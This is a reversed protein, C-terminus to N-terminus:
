MFYESLDYIYDKNNKKNVRMSIKDIILDPNFIIISSKYKNKYVLQYLKIKFIDISKIEFSKINSIIKYKDNDILNSNISYIHNIVALKNAVVVYLFTMYLTISVYIDMKLYYFLISVSYFIIFYIIARTRYLLKVTLYSYYKSPPEKKFILRKDITKVINSLAIYENKVYWILILFVIVYLIEVYKFEIKLFTAFAAWYIFHNIIKNLEIKMTFKIDTLKDMPNPYICVRGRNEILKKIIIMFQCLILVFLMVIIINNLEVTKGARELIFIIYLSIISNLDVGNIQGKKKVYFIILPLHILSTILLGLSYSFILSLINLIVILVNFIRLYQYIKNFIPTKNSKIILFVINLLILIINMYM